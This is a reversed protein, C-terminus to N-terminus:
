TAKREKFEIYERNFSLKRNLTMIDLIYLVKENPTFLLNPHTGLGEEKQLSPGYM